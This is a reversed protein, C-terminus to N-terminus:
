PRNSGEIWKVRNCAVHQKDGSALACDSQAERKVHDSAEKMALQNFLVLTLAAAAYKLNTM